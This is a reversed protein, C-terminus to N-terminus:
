RVSVSGLWPAVTTWGTKPPDWRSGVAYALFEFHSSYIIYIMWTSPPVTFGTYFEGGQRYYRLVIPTSGISISTYYPVELCGGDSNVDWNNIAHPVYAGISFDYVVFNPKYLGSITYKKPYYRKCWTSTYAAIFGIRAISFSNYNILPARAILGM